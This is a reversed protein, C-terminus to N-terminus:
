IEWKSIIFIYIVSRVTTISRVLKTRHTDLFGPQGLSKLKNEMASTAYDAATLWDIRTTWRFSSNMSGDAGVDTGPCSSWWAPQKTNLSKSEFRNCLCTYEGTEEGFSAKTGQRGFVCEICVEIAWKEVKKLKASVM